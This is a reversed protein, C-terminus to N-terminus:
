ASGSSSHIFRSGGQRTCVALSIWFALVESNPDSPLSQPGLFLLFPSLGFPAVANLIM